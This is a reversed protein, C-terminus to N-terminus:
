QCLVQPRSFRTRSIPSTPKSRRVASRCLCVLLPTPFANMGPGETTEVTHADESRRVACPALPPSAREGNRGEFRTVRWGRAESVANFSAPGPSPTQTRRSGARAGSLGSAFKGGDRRLALLEGSPHGCPRQIGEDARCAAGSATRFPPTPPPRSPTPISVRDRHRTSFAGSSRPPRWTPSREVRIWESCPRRNGWERQVGQTSQPPRRVHGSVEGIRRAAIRSLGSRRSTSQSLPIPPELRTRSLVDSYAYRRHGIGTKGIPDRCVCVARTEFSVLAIQIM